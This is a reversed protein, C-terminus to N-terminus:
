KERFARHFADLIPSLAYLAVTTEGTGVMVEAPMGPVMKVEPMDATSRRDVRLRAVYYPQNTKEDVIRDASVYIVSADLPRTRRRGYPLLRIQAPLGVHVRDIDEPRIQAEVVLADHKPVIEMLVAGEKVVGGVTHVKLDTVIGDQPATIATRAMVNVADERKQELDHIKNQTDRLDDATEKMADNRLSLINLESEAITQRARATQALLDGRKGELEALERQLQLLRPRRELGKALLEQVGNIEDGVLAIRKRTAKEEAEYGAIEERVQAIRERTAAVKSELLSRRTDFIQEQGALARAVVPDSGHALLDDPFRVTSAGDRQALLRAERARADWLQGELATLVTRARTADLRLLTQGEKVEDGDKVLIAAVIGDELHQISKRSSESVVAGPALAASELPTVGAWVGLGVVFVGIVTGALRMRSRVYAAPTAPVAAAIEEIVSLQSM